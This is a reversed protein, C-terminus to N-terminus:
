QTNSGGFVMIKDQHLIASHGERAELLNEINFWQNYQYKAITASARFSGSVMAHGGMMIVYENYTVM